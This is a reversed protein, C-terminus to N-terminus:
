KLNTKVTEVDGEIELVADPHSKKIKNYHRRIQDMTGSGKYCEKGYTISYDKM